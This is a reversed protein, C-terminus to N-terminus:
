ITWESPLAPANPNARHSRYTLDLHNETGFFGPRMSMYVPDGPKLQAPSIWEGASRLARWAPVNLVIGNSLDVVYM